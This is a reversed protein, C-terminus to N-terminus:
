SVEKIPTATVDIVAEGISAEIFLSRCDECLRPYIEQFLRMFDNFQQNIQIYQNKMESRPEILKEIKAVRDWAAMFMRFLREADKVDGGEALEDLLLPLIDGRVLELEARVEKIPDIYFREAAEKELVALQHGPISKRWNQVNQYNLPVTLENRHRRNLLKATVQPGLGQRFMLEMAEDVLGYEVVKASRGM